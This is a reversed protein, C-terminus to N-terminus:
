DEDENEDTTLLSRSHEILDKRRLVTRYELDKKEENWGTVESIEAVKFNKMFVIVQLEKLMRLSETRNYKSAYMVYDALKNIAERSSPSHVSCWAKNGTDCANIFYMAEEGKVEGIIFYDIDTLLGNKALEKLDYNDTIHMFTMEPKDSFLEESEQIISGSADSPTMELLTNMLTTKGSSGKGTFVIGKAERAAWVLYNATQRDMVGLNILDDITYKTKPVKRIHYIPYGSNIDELTINNRLIFNPNSYKDTFVHIQESRSRHYRMLIGNLFRLYDSADIFRLNSTRRQGHVKVRIKDPAVVKIDSIAPDNILDDLIYFGRASSRVKKMVIALDRESIDPNYKYVYKEAEHLYQRETIDGNNLKIFEGSSVGSTFAIITQNAISQIKDRPFDTQISSEESVTQYMIEEVDERATMVMPFKDLYESHGNEVKRSIADLNLSFQEIVGNIYSSQLEDKLQGSRTDVWTDTNLQRANLPYLLFHCYTDGDREFCVCSLVNDAGFLNAFFQYTFIGLNTPTVNHRKAIMSVGDIALVNDSSIGAMVYSHRAAWLDKWHFVSADERPCVEYSERDLHLREAEAFQKEDKILRIQIRIDKDAM